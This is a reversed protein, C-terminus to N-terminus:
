SPCPLCTLKGRTLYFVVFVSPLQVSKMNRWMRLWNVPYLVTYKNGPHCFVIIQLGCPPWSLWQTNIVAWMKYGFAAEKQNWWSLMDQYFMLQKPLFEYLSSIINKSAQRLPTLRSRNQNTFYEDLRYSQCEQNGTVYSYIKYRYKLRLLM